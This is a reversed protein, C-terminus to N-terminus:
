HVHVALTLTTGPRMLALAAPAIDLPDFGSNYGSGSAARVGNVYITIDEDYYAMFELHSSGGPPMVFTRRLWLDGPSDTWPTRVTTWGVPTGFAGPGTKWGSDDFGIAYWDASPPSATTTYRWSAPASRENPLLYTVVPKPPLPAWGRSIKVPDAAAWKHWVARNTLMRVFVGGVVSRAHFGDSHVDDTQYTDVLPLRATTTDLYTYFPGILAAFDAPDDALTASFFSHDTDGIKTRSDLPVGYRGMRSKYWAVEKRAVSPPFVNLGLVKDWVLNYKQSWTGPKDFALLSHDGRDAIRVWHAADSRALATYKHAGARDGRARCLDGYAALALIAKVSLNANHALHGMFDDTCLQDEPDLGYQELYHAWRTLLPWYPTVFDADGDAQAIADCLLLMDGSEEVPMAEGAEGTARALPYTGLDHPSNPFKWRDSAAYALAPVAAAKALTPSVLLWLPSTPFLVDVTAIDGNSTNEKTFLLPRGNADVSIGTAALSQRYALAGIRAYRAGGVQTLDAMLRRDFEACRRTLAPYDREAAQLMAAPTAGNRRWYPLLNRGALQINYREDYAIMLHRSVAATGVRGLPFVFALTPPDDSAARPKRIDDTAPLTGQTVFLNLLANNGGIVAAAGRSPAAAYAYGWDIRVDDGAPKLLAQGATGARLATLPGMTERGWTVPQDPTNVTLLASASDYLSVAHAKGDVSRVSWTLYTVPRTLVDLDDPLAATLFTLTVHVQTGGFDYISRTPTVQVGTQPLAPVTQPDNGILRYAKGDVRILSVLPHPHRTWHRTVDDTLRDAESWISLYPDSTV